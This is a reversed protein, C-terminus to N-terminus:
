DDAGGPVAQSIEPRHGAANDLRIPVGHPTAHAAEQWAHALDDVEALGAIGNAALISELTQLWAAWYDQGSALRAGFARTWDSWDFLGREALAVTLGFVQAQWPADFPAEPSDPM